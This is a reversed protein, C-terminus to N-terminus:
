SFAFYCLPLNQAAHLTEQALRPLEKAPSRRRALSRGFCPALRWSSWLRCSTDKLFCGSACASPRLVIDTSIVPRAQLANNNPIVAPM